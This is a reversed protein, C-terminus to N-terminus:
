RITRYYFAHGLANKAAAFFMPGNIEYVMVGEPVPRYLGNDAEGAEIYKWESVVAVDAMRRMFLLCTLMLGVAIAVVLDFIVTLVFTLM